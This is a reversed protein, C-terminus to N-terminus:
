LNVSCLNFSCSILTQSCFFFIGRVREKMAPLAISVLEGDDEESGNGLDLSLGRGIKGAVGECVWLGGYVGKLVTEDYTRVMEEPCPKPDRLFDM